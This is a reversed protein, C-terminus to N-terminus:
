YETPVYHKSLRFSDLWVQFEVDKSLSKLMMWCLFHDRKRCLNVLDYRVGPSLEHGSGGWVSHHPLTVRRQDWTNINSKAESGDEESPQTFRLIIFIECICTQTGNIPSNYHTHFALIIHTHHTVYMNIHM